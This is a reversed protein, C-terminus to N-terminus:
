HDFYIASEREMKECSKRFSISFVKKTNRFVSVSAFTLCFKFLSHSFRSHLKVHTGM